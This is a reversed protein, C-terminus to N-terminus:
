VPSTLARLTDESEWVETEAIMFGRLGPCGAEWLDCSAACGLLPACEADCPQMAVLNCVTDDLAAYCQPWLAEDYLGMLPFLLPEM